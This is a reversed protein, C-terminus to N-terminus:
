LLVLVSIIESLLCLLLSSFNSGLTFRCRFTFDKASVSFPYFALSINCVILLIERFYLVEIMPLEEATFNQCCLCAFYLLSAGITSSIVHIDLALMLPM